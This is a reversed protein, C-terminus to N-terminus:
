LGAATKLLLKKSLRYDLAIKFANFGDKHNQSLEEDEELSTQFSNLLDSSQVRVIPNPHQGDIFNSSSFSDPSRSEIDKPLSIVDGGDSRMSPIFGYHLLYEEHSRPGYDLCVPEGEKIEKEGVFLMVSASGTVYSCGGDEKPAHNANDLFPVLMRTSSNPGAELARSCVLSLARSFEKEAHESTFREYQSARWRAVSAVDELLTQNQLQMLEDKTWRDATYPGDDQPMGFNVYPKWSFPKYEYSRGGGFSITKQYHDATESDVENQIHCLKSAVSGAWNNNENHGTLPITLARPVHIAVEGPKLDRTAILGKGGGMDGEVSVEVSRIIKNEDAWQHFEDISVASAGDRFPTAHSIASLAPNRGHRSTSTIQFSNSCQFASAAIFLHTCVAWMVREKM